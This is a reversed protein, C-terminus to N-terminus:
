KENKMARQAYTVRVGGEQCDFAVAGTDADYTASVARGTELPWQRRLTVLGAEDLDYIAYGRTGLAVAFGGSMAAVALAPGDTLCRTIQVPAGDPGTRFIRVGDWGCPSLLLSFESKRSESAPFVGSSPLAPPIAPILPFVLVNTAAALLEPAFIDSIDFEVAAVGDADEVRLFGAAASLTEPAFGDLDFHCVPLPAAPDAIDVVELRNSALSYQAFGIALRDTAATAASVAALLAFAM